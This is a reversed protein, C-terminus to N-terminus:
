RKNKLKSSINVPKKDSVQKQKLTEADICSKALAALHKCMFPLPDETNSISELPKAVRAAEAKAELIPKDKSNYKFDNCKCDVKVKTQVSISGFFKISCLSPQSGDGVMNAIFLTYSGENESGSRKVLNSVTYPMSNTVRSSKATLLLKELTIM